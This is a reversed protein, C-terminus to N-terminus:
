IRKKATNDVYGGGAEIFLKRGSINLSAYNEVQIGDYKSKININGSVLSVQSADDESKLSGECKIGDGEETEINLNLEDESGITIDSDTKIADDYSLIDYSGSLISISKSGKIGNKYGAKIKTEGLGDLTLKKKSSIAGKSDFDGDSSRSDELYNISGELSTITLKAKSSSFDIPSFEGVIKVGNLYITVDDEISSAITINRKNTDGKLLFSGGTSLEISDDDISYKGELSEAAGEAFDITYDAKVESDSSSYSDDLVLSDLVLPTLGDGTDESDSGSGGDDGKEGGENDGNPSDDMDGSAVGCSLLLLASLLLPFNRLYKKKM